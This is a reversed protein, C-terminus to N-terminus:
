KRKRLRTALGLLGSGLLFLSAPEPTPASTSGLGSVRTQEIDKLDVSSSLKIHTIDEGSSALITFFNEGRGIKFTEAVPGGNLLDVILTLTGSANDVTHVDFMFGTFFVGTRDHITLDTFGDGDAAMIMAQGRAPTMLSEDATFDLVFGPKSAGQVTLGSNMLGPQNFFINEEGSQPHNGPVITVLDAKGVAATLSLALLALLFRQQM